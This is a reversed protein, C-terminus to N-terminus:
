AADEISHAGTESRRGLCDKLYLKLKKMVDQKSDSFLPVAENLTKHNDCLQERSWKAIQHPKVKGKKNLCYDLIVQAAIKLEAETKEIM